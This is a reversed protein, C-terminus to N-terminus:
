RGLEEGWLMWHFQPLFRFKALVQSQQIDELLYKYRYLADMVREPHTNFQSKIGTPAPNGLSLFWGAFQYQNAFRSYMEIAFDLDRQDFVVIKMVPNIGNMWCNRLFEDLVDIVTVEGMGPGKPSITVCECDAIWPKWLTGQTEVNIKLKAGRLLAVLIQLDHICPNGGSFTMWECTPGQYVGCKMFDEFIEVQTMFRGNAKVSKPDVAHMSDCMTCKYDCLGFRMFYTQVGIQIGEGQVTPGFTEMIPIRKLAGSPDM